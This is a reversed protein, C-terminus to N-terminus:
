ARWGSAKSVKMFVAGVIAAMGVIIVARALAEPHMNGRQSANYSRARETYKRRRQAPGDDDEVEKKKTTQRGLGLYDRILADDSDSLDLWDRTKEGHDLPCAINLGGFEGELGSKKRTTITGDSPLWEELTQPPLTRFILCTWMELINLLLDPCDMGPLAHNGMNPSPLVAVLGIANYISQQMAHYHLSPNDRRYRFNLHQSVRQRISTAQGIYIRVKKDLGLVGNLYVGRGEFKFVDGGISKLADLSWRGHLFAWIQPRICRFCFEDLRPHKVLWKGYRAHYKSTPAKLRELLHTLITQAELQAPTLEAPYDFMNPRANNNNNNNYPTFKHSPLRSPSGSEAVAAM